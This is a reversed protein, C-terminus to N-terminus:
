WASSKSMLLYAIGYLLMAILLAINYGYAFAILMIVASGFTSAAGNVAFGWDIKEGVRLTGKPFPMGMFFGLPAILVATICIRWPLLLHEASYTIYKLLVIDLILWIIIGAFPVSDRFNDSFRSGIGSSILLTLLITIISYISPGIFLTYKQMLIIEIMMFAMGITFFYLWPVTKLQDRKLLYPLLNLPIIILAVVLLIISIIVKSLPFGYFEYTRVGKMNGWPINKWQGLQATFPRNDTSPSIDIKAEDAADRWGDEVIRNILNDQLSDAAPYLLHIHAFKGASLEGFAHNRIEDTLPRKSIFLIQRRMSPLAYVAFHSEVNEVGLEGLAMMLESVLRPVYFQHEMMVYGSDSLANWYDRFAEKTFLYNEAMAFSGSALAAFTNSSLSYILDFKNDFRRVYARADETVVKVRPDNYIQGSFEALEGKKMLWNIHPIVEAAHVETCGEQLAQVVDSGGGAGLSLFTCSDFQDILYSVDIGYQYRLSDPMHGSRVPSNALNDINIGRWYENYEFIKIKAMADWHTYIVPAREKRDVRLMEEGHLALIAAMGILVVPAVRYWNDLALIAAIIIPLAIFFTAIPTGVWNMIIIAFLVGIGAGILDAMYMKPMIKHYQKFLLALAMGGFFYASNLIFVTVILRIVMTGSTFLQSFDLGVQFVLPPGALMMFASMSLYVGLLKKRNLFPFLYLALAGLGLGLISLSLILFAFAYFFEASFIRTWVLEMAILSVSMLAIIMFKSKQM